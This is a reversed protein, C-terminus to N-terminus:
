KNQELEYGTRKGKDVAPLGEKMWIPMPADLLYHDFFQRMRISLDRQNARRTLNHDDDNYNLMWCPKDLRRLATFYEIGQYWPVAGDKDNHMILLPTQVKDAHFLPSNKIYRERDEWLTVGLRSQGKEYQFERVWGSGWRIGGYASTMNSVPAGAMAARYMNTQTILYATQYGGWSQGQLGMRDKNIYGQAIMHQTGSVICDYADEGPTGENYLIDPIFVVYGNSCYETPNIISASPRPAYYTHIEDAYKEYFYVIMPYKKTSDFDEPLYILGELERGKPSKWHTLSVSAWNYEKQQPNINSLQKASTMRLDSHWLNPSQLFNMRSFLVKEASKAKKLPGYTHDSEALRIPSNARNKEEYLYFGDRKTTENFGSLVLFSEDIHKQEPDLSIYRLRTKSERGFNRTLCICKSPDQVDLRWIDHLGYVYVYKDEKSFGMIGIADELAPNGNDDEWFDETIGASINQKKGSAIELSFWHDEKRDYYVLYKGNLSMRCYFRHGQLLLKREGNIVNVLYYDMGTPSDWSKSKEYASMSYGLAVDGNNDDIISLDELNQDSLQVIKNTNLHYVCLWSKKKDREVVKLQEPQLRTDTWSWIDLRYKEDETLSDKIEKEPKPAIGFFIRQGNKSFYPAANESVCHEKPMISNSADVMLSSTANGEKWYYLDYVKNKATDTSALFSLADGTETIAISKALGEMAHVTKWKGTASSFVKIYASDKKNVNRQQIFAIQEGKKSVVFDTVHPFQVLYPNPKPKKPAKIPPISLLHERAVFELVTGESTIVPAKKKKKKSPIEKMKFHHIVAWKSEERVGYTKSLPFKKLIKRQQMDFVGVSDKPLDDEKKKALKAKRTQEYAPKIRFLVFNGGDFFRADYGRSISDTTNTTTNVLYLYGDGIQPNVEFVVHNGNSSIQSNRVSQWQDYATHDIKKKPNQAFSFAAYVSAAVLFLIAKPNM